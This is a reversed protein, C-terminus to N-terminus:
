SRDGKDVRKDSVTRQYTGAAKLWKVMMGIDVVEPDYVVRNIEEHNLWGKEV